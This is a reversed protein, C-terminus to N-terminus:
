KTGYRSQLMAYIARLGNTQAGVARGPQKTPNWGFFDVHVWPTKTDVFHDLFLAAIIAGAGSFRIISMVDGVSGKMYERYARYLPLPWIPDCMDTGHKVLDDILNDQNSLFGAIDPGLAKTMSGTLTAFDIIMDPQEEAAATLADALILRGEADTDGIEVTIGKRSKIVDLPRISNASIFNEVAPVLLRLRVSLGAAMVLNALAIAQAAGAMDKKMLLMSERTKINLGGSDFCVGKGIITLKPAGADGWRLDILHPPRASGRGVAHILPYNEALLEEGVLIRMEAGHAKGVNVASAALEAPGMDNPPANILDLAVKTSHVLRDVEEAIDVEALHLIPQQQVTNSVVSKFKVFAYSGHWWGFAALMKNIGQPWHGVFYNGVSLRSFLAAFQWVENGCPMLGVISAVKGVSNYIVQLGTDPKLPNNELWTRVTQDATELWGRLDEADRFLFIPIANVPAAHFSLSPMTM